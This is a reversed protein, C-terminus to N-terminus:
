LKPIRARKLWFSGMNQRPQEAVWGGELARALWFGLGESARM